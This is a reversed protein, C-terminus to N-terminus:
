NQLIQRDAFKAFVDTESIRLVPVQDHAQSVM